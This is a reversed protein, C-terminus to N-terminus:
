KLIQVPTKPASPASPPRPPAAGETGEKRSFAAEPAGFTREKRGCAAEPAGLLVTDFTGREKQDTAEVDGNSIM